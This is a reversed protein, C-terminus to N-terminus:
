IDSLRLGPSGFPSSLQAHLALLVSCLEFRLGRRRAAVHEQRLHFGDNGEGPQHRQDGRVRRGVDPRRPRGGSPISRM